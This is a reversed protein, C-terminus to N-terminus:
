QEKKCHLPPAPQNSMEEEVESYDVFFVDRTIPRTYQRTIM